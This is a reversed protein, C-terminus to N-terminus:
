VGSKIDIAIRKLGKSFRSRLVNARAGLSKEMEEYSYGLVLHDYIERLNDDMRAVIEELLVKTEMERSVDMALDHNIEDLQAERKRKAQLDFVRHKYSTFLYAPLSVIQERRASPIRTVASLLNARVDSEDLDHAKGFVVAQSWIESLAKWSEPDVSPYSEKFTTSLSEWPPWTSTSEDTM